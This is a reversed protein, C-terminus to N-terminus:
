SEAYYVSSNLVWFFVRFDDAFYTWFLMKNGYCIESKFLFLLTVMWWFCYGYKEFKLGKSSINPGRVDDVLYVWFVMKNGYYIECVQISIFSNGNILCYVLLLRLGVWIEVRRFFKLSKVVIPAPRCSLILVVNTGMVFSESKYLFLFIAM